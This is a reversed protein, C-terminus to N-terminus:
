SYELSHYFTLEKVIEYELSHYFTLEKVIEYISTELM